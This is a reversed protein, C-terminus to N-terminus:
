SAPTKEDSSKRRRRRRKKPAKSETEKSAKKRGSSDSEFLAIQELLEEGYHAVQWDRLDDLKSMAELDEPREGAVAKLQSNNGVMVMPVRDRSIVAKRWDKLQEFLREAERGSYRYRPKEAKRPPRPLPDSDELGKQVAEVMGDGYRRVMTSSGRVHRKLSEISTPKKESLLILVRDPFVKYPPRDLERATVDRLRWLHRLVRRDDDELHGIRKMRIWDDPSFERVPFNKQELLRFEEQVIEWRGLRQLKFILLERLALLYHSDGRAYDLHEPLLPREAWDHRQYRKDMEADFYAGCLDALGVRPLDLFQSAIMTDFLNIITFGYDRNMCMLDYDAGHFIKVKEPDAFIAGLPSLDDIKLPDVIYDRESDSIQILCVKEQYHHMSDSETDVGIVPEKALTECVELLTADDEVMILPTEDM